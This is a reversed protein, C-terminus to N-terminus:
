KFGSEMEKGKEQIEKCSQILNRLYDNNLSQDYDGM